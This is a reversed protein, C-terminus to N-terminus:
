ETTTFPKVVYVSLLITLIFQGDTMETIIEGSYKAIASRMNQLGYGHLEKDEKTTFRKKQLLSKHHKIQSVTNQMTIIYYTKTRKLRMYFRREGEVQLLAEIANDLANAFVACIDVPSMALGQDLVGDIEFYINNSKMMELKSTVICDLLDSGTVVEPSLSSIHGLLENVYEGAEQQKGEQQLMQIVMLHNIMEIDLIILDYKTKRVSDLLKRGDRFLYVMIDLSKYAEEIQKKALNLYELEDDCIAIKM